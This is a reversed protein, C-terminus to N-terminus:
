AKAERWLEAVAPRMSAHAGADPFILHVAADDVGLRAYLLWWPLGTVMLATQVQWWYYRPPAAYWEAVQRSYGGSQKAEVGGLGQGFARLGTLHNWVSEWHGPRSTGRDYEPFHGTRLDPALVLGDLTCGIRTRPDYVLPRMARVRCGLLRQLVLLNGRESADGWWMRRTVPIDREVGARKAQLIEDRTAYPSEGMVAAMESGTVLTARAALWAPRDDASPGLEYRRSM